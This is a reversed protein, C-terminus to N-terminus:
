STANKAGLEFSLPPDIELCPICIWYNGLRDLKKGCHCLPTETQTQYEKGKKKEPTAEHAM